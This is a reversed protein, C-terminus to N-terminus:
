KPYTFVVQYSKELPKLNTIQYVLTVPYILDYVVTKSKDPEKKYSVRIVSDQINIVPQCLDGDTIETNVEFSITSSNEIKFNIPKPMKNVVFSDSSIAHMLTEEEALTKFRKEMVMKTKSQCAFFIIFAPLTIVIKKM